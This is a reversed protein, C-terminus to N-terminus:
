IWDQGLDRGLDCTYNWEIADGDQLKYRSCGYDPYWGNVSYMWGSLSGCDFQYLNNIGEIYVSNYLPTVSSEMHIKKTASNKTVALLVDYVSDGSKINVSTVDLIIGSKPVIREDQAHRELNDWNQVATHCQITITVTSFAAGDPSSVESGSNNASEGAAGKQGCAALSFLMCLTILLSLIKKM